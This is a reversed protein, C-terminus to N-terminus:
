VNHFRGKVGDPVYQSGGSNATVFYWLYPFWINILTSAYNRGVCLLVKNNDNARLMVSGPYKWGIGDWKYCETSCWDLIIKEKKLDVCHHRRPTDKRMTKVGATAYVHIYAYIHIYVSLCFHIWVYLYTCQMNYAWQVTLLQSLLPHYLYGPCCPYHWHHADRWRGDWVAACDSLGAAQWIAWQGTLYCGERIDSQSMQHGLSCLVTLSTRQASSTFTSSKKTLHCFLKESPIFMRNKKGLKMM